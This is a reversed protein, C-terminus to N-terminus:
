LIHSATGIVLLPEGLVLGLWREHGSGLWCVIVQHSWGLFLGLDELLWEEPEVSAIIIHGDILCVKTFLLWIAKFLYFHNTFLMSAIVIVDLFMIMAFIIVLYLILVQPFKLYFVYGFHSVLDHVIVLIVILVVNVRGFLLFHLQLIRYGILINVILLKWIWDAPLFRLFKYSVLFRKTWLQALGLFFLFLVRLALILLWNGRFITFDDWFVTM